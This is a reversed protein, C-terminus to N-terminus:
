PLKRRYVLEGALPGADFAISLEDPSSADPV